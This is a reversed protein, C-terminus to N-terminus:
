TSFDLYIDRIKHVTHKMQPELNHILLILNFLSSNQKTFVRVNGVGSPPLRLPRSINYIDGVLHVEVGGLNAIGPMLVRASSAKFADSNAKLIADASDRNGTPDANYETVKVVRSSAPGQM